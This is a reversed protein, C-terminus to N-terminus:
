KRNIVATKIQKRMQRQTCANGIKANIYNNKSNEIQVKYQNRIIKYKDWAQSSNEIKAKLYNIIKRRKM